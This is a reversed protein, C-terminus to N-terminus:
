KTCTDAAGSSLVFEVIRGWIGGGGWLHSDDDGHGDDNNPNDEGDGDDDDNCECSSQKDQQGHFPMVM